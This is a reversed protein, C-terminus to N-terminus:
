KESACSPAPGFDNDGTQGAYLFLLLLAIPAGAPWLLWALIWGLWSSGVKAIRDILREAAKDMGLIYVVYVVALGAPTLYWFWFGSLNMDHLRRVSVSILPILLLLSVVAFIWFLIEGLKSGDALSLLLFEVVQVLVYFLLFTWFECRPARGQFSFSKKLSSVVSGVMCKCTAVVRNLFEAM